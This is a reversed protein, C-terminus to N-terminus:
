KLDKTTSMALGFQAAYYTSMVIFGSFPVPFNWKDVAIVFDSFMFILGGISGLLAAKTREAEYRVTARYGVIFVLILYIGVLIKMLYSDIGSQVCLYTDIGLLVFLQGVKSGKVEMELGNIYLLQAAGFFLVGPIFLTHRFVLCADGISSLLLAFVFHRARRDEPILEEKTPVKMPLNNSTFCIYLALSWIPLVKFFVSGFTEAPYGTMPVYLIFYTVLTVCFPVLRMKQDRSLTFRLQEPLEMKKKLQYIIRFHNSYYHLM